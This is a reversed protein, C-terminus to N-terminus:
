CLPLAYAPPPLTGCGHCRLAQASSVRREMLRELRALRMDVDIQQEDSLAGDGYAELKASLMSEEFQSYADFVMSFDRVTIM